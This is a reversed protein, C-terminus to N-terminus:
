ASRHVVIARDRVLFESFKIGAEYCPLLYRRTRRVWVVIGRAFFHPSNIVIKQKKELRTWIVLRVGSDSIDVVRGVLKQPSDLLHFQIASRPPYRKLDRRDM